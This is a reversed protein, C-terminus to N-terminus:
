SKLHKKKIYRVLWVNSKIILITLLVSVCVKGISFLKIPNKKDLHSDLHTLLHM